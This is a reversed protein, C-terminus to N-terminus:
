QDHGFVKGGTLGFSTDLILPTITTGDPGKKMLALALEPPQGAKIAMVVTMLEQHQRYIEKIEKGMPRGSKEHRWQIIGYTEDDLRVPPYKPKANEDM